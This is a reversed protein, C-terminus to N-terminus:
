KIIQIVEVNAARAIKMMMDTGKGGPFAIVIDPKGEKLMQTNRIYGASLGYKNWDAKMTTFPIENRKAWRMAWYDAGGIIERTHYDRTRQGGETVHTIIRKKHIQDLAKFLYLFDTFDRGGCIIARM